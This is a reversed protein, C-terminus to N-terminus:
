SATPHVMCLHPQVSQLPALNTSNSGGAWRVNVPAHPPEVGLHTHGEGREPRTYSERYTDREKETERRREAPIEPETLLQPPPKARVEGGGWGGPEM